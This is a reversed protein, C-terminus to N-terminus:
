RAFSSTTSPRDKQSSEGILYQLSKRVYKEKIGLERGRREDIEAFYDPTVEELSWDIVADEGTAAQRTSRRSVEAASDPSKLDLLAYPQSKRFRGRHLPNRGPTRRGDPGAWGRSRM